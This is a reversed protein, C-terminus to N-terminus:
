SKTRSPDDRRTNAKQWFLPLDGTRSSRASAEHATERKASDWGRSLQRFITPETFRESERRRERARRFLEASRKLMKNARQAGRARFGASQWNPPSGQIRPKRSVRLKLIVIPAGSVFHRAPGKLIRRAM